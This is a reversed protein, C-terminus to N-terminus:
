KLHKLALIAKPDKLEKVHNDLRINFLTENKGIHRQNYITHLM